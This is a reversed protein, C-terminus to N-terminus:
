PANDFSLEDKSKKAPRGFNYILGAYVIRSSRRRITESQLSATDILTREKLSNFVDSVTVVFATKKDRFNHRLGINVVATPYRYGQPTLRKATYNANLQVLTAKSVDWGLNVKADWAAASRPASFGLNGADIENRYINGSFNLALKDLFRRTIGLEVGSARSVSLNEKTTLLAGGNIFRTVETIGNYRYRHYATALYTTDDQKFQWGAEVSHIQEPQLKPNGARLNFPDQYEPYPNLDDGEPRRVRHSYNLQLQQNKPLDYTLHLTPYGRLEPRISRTFELASTRAESRLGSADLFHERDPVFIRISERGRTAAVYLGERSAAGALFVKDVTIGQSAHSTLAYGYAVQRTRLTSGDQLILQGSANVSQVTVVTGNALRRIQGSPSEAQAISRLRLRDGTAVPNPREDCVIWALGSQRPSLSLETAGRAVVLRGQEKRLVRLEDGKAFHKTTKHAVLVDGPHYNRYDKQRSRAWDKARLAVFDRDPGHLKEGTRLRHRAELNLQDIEAWTPAVMLATKPREQLGSRTRVPKTEQSAKLWEEVMRQHRVSPSDIEVIAGMRDLKRLGSTLRGTALDEAAKRYAPNAAQRHVQALTVIRVRSEREIIRAADGAEVSKHQASDGVLLLRANQTTTIDVLQKLQRTSLLGYEDVVVVQEKLSEQLTPDVLLRQVTAASQLVAGASAHGALAQSVGDWHLVEVAQTSPAFCAVKAGYRTVGEILTALAQTKGTGARGRLVTVSDRSDLTTEVAHRQERTLHASEGSSLFGFGGDHTGVGANLLRVLDREHDLAEQTSVQGDSRLLRDDAALASKVAALTHAGYTERLVEATLGHEPVVTRREFLHETARAIAENLSVSEPAAMGPSRAKLAQLQALESEKVQALQGQRVQGPTLEYQKAARNERVLIAIEDRTLERGLEAERFAIARDREQARKSFRELLDPSVGTLEFGNPRREIQYGLQHVERALANRYVETLYKTREFIASSELALLQGGKSDSRTVNFIFAHSHLHPDLARSEGHRFVAAAIAGSTVYRKNVGRGTQHCAHAELERLAETVATEHAILLREDGGLFAQISVSKPRQFHTTAPAAAPRWGNPSSKV